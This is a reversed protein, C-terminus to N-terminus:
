EVAITMGNEKGVQTFEMQTFQFALKLPRMLKMWVMTQNGLIGIGGFAMEEVMQQGHMKRILSNGFTADWKSAAPGFKVLGAPKM